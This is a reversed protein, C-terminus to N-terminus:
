ALSHDPGHSNAGPSKERLLTGDLCDALLSIHYLRVEADYLNSFIRFGYIERLYAKTYIHIQMFSLATKHKTVCMWFDHKSGAPAGRRARYLTNLQLEVPRRFVVGCSWVEVRGMGVVSPWCTKPRTELHAECPLSTQEERYTAKDRYVNGGSVRKCFVVGFDHGRQHM